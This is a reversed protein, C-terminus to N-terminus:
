FISGQKYHIPWCEIIPLPFLHASIIKSDSWVDWIPKDIEDARRDTREDIATQGRGDRQRKTPGHDRDTGDDTRGYIDTRLYTQGGDTRKVTQGGHTHTQGDTRDNTRGNTPVNTSEDERSPKGDIPEDTPRKM